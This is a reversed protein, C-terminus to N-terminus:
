RSRWRWACVNSGGRRAVALGRWFRGPVGPTLGATAQHKVATRAHAGGRWLLASQPWLRTSDFPLAWRCDPLYPLVGLARALHFVSTRQYCGGHGIAPETTLLCDSWGAAM